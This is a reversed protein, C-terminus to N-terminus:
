LLIANYHYLQSIFSDKGLARNGGTGGSVSAPPPALAALSCGSWPIQKLCSLGGLCGHCERGPQRGARTPEISYRRLPVGM